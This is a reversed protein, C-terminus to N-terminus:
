RPGLEQVLRRIKTCVPAIHITLNTPDDATFDIPTIGLLDTPFKLQKTRPKVFLTRYRGLAGLCIGFELIVNDRPAYTELDHGEQLIRDDMTCVLIGFDATRIRSELDEVTPHGPLFVNNTWVQPLVFDHTLGAQIENAVALGEVSSGIFIVPRPNPPSIYKSRERLREGLKLALHRWIKPHAEAIKAFASQSIKALVSDEIASVTGSRKASPDIMAMEGVHQRAQRIAIERGNVQISLRGALILFIDNDCAEQRFLVDNPKLNVHEVVRCMEKAINENHAVCQQDLISELILQPNSSFRDLM